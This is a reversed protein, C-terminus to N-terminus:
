LQVLSDRAMDSANRDDVTQWSLESGMVGNPGESDSNFM